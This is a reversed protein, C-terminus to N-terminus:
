ERHAAALEDLRTSRLTARLDPAAHAAVLAARDAHLIVRDDVVRRTPM